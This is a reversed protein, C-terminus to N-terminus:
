ARAERGHERGREHRHLAHRYDTVLSRSVFQYRWGIRFPEKDNARRWEERKRERLWVWRMFDIASAFDGEFVERLMKTAASCAGAHEKPGAIEEADVGYVHRHMRAYLAVLHKPAGEREENLVDDLEDFAARLDRRVASPARPKRKKPPGLSALIADGPRPAPATVPAPTPLARRARPM